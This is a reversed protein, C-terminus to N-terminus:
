KVAPWSMRSSLEIKQLRGEQLYVIAHTELMRCHGRQCDKQTAQGLMSVVGIKERGQQSETVLCANERGAIAPNCTKGAILAALSSVSSGVACGATVNGSCFVVQILFFLFQSIERPIIERWSRSQLYGYRLLSLQCTSFEGAGCFDEVERM